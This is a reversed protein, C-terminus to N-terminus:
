KVLSGWPIKYCRDVAHESIGRDPVVNLSHLFCDPARVTERNGCINKFGCKFQFLTLLPRGLIAELASRGFALEQCRLVYGRWWLEEGGINCVLSL